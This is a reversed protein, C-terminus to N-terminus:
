SLNLGESLTWAGAKLQTRFEAPRTLWRSSDLRAFPLKAQQSNQSQKARFESPRPVDFVGALLSLGHECNRGLFKKELLRM